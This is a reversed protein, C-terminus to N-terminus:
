YPPYPSPTPATSLARFILHSWGVQLRRYCVGFSSFVSMVFVYLLFVRFLWGRSGLLVVGGRRLAKRGGGGLGEYDRMDLTIGSRRRPM